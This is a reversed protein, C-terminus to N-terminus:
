LLHEFHKGQVARIYALQNYFSSVAKRNYERSICRTEDVIRSRLNDLDNPKTIQYINNKLYGWFFYDLPVLDPSGQYGSLQVV